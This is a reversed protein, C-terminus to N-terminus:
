ERDIVYEGNADIFYSGDPNQRLLDKCYFKATKNFCTGTQEASLKLIEKLENESVENFFLTSNKETSAKLQDFNLYGDIPIEVEGDLRPFLKTNTNRWSFIKAYGVVSDRTPNGEFDLPVFVCKYLNTPDSDLAYVDCGQYNSWTPLNSKVVTGNINLVQGM